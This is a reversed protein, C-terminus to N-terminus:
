YVRIISEIKSNCIPCRCFRCIGRKECEEPICLNTKRPSASTPLRQVSFDKECVHCLCKHGCPFLVHSRPHETCIICLDGEECETLKDQLKKETTQLVQITAQYQTAKEAADYLKERLKKDEAARMEVAAQAMNAKETAENAARESEECMLKYRAADAKSLQENTHAKKAQEAARAAEEAAVKAEETARRAKEEAGAATQRVKETEVESEVARRRSEDVERLLLEIQRKNEAQMLAKERHLAESFRKNEEELM